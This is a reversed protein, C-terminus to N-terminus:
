GESTTLLSAKQANSRKEAAVSASLGSGGFFRILRQWVSASLGSDCIRPTSSHQPPAACVRTWHWVVALLTCYCLIAYVLM